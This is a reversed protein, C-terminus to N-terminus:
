FDLGHAKRRVHMIMKEGIIYHIVCIAALVGACVWVRAASLSQIKLSVPDTGHALYLAGLIVIGWWLVFVAAIWIQMRAENKREYTTLFYRDPHLIRKWPKIKLARYVPWLLAWYNLRFVDARSAKKERLRFAWEIIYGAFIVVSAAFWAIMATIQWGKGFADAMEGPTVTFGLLFLLLFVCGWFSFFMFTWYPYFVRKIKM